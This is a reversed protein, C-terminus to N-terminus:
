NFGYEESGSFLEQIMTKLGRNDDDSLTSDAELIEKAATQTQKLLEVDETMDAIKMQPLGHQQKGFFNGPGRLKLDTNAIEFGNATAVMTDIRAKTYESKNDTVLICHSQVNGRGVRGRLQHLQSLGFREANEILMIVANPVDVGVEIVTTSVLVKTINNKFASMVEDKEAQKMRGHLLGIPIDRFYTDKLFEYYETAGKKEDKNDSDAETVLSCVIYAQNGQAIYKKIFNYLRERYSSDVGYTKVPLRGKPMEDLISIDLDGYIILALTRPIPTASMVLTHPNEGKEILVSRQAVGFRHQEDTIVLGLKHFKVSKQILAQTGIIINAENNEIAKKIERKEKPTNSGLLLVVNVGLPSLFECFTEYHQKALIETPAMLVSQCSNKFAFYALAAAVLTKGSGVDGQLLRNMPIRLCMDRMGEDVSRKQAATPRFPLADYFEAINQKVMITGTLKRNRNRLLNLGLQLVLLEQFALRKKAARYENEDAPFHIQRIANKMPILDYRDRMEVSMPEAVDYLELANKLNSSIINQSLGNTLPYKPVLKCGSNEDIFLPSNIERRLLDGQVKGNFIYKRGVVLKDFVYNANFFTCVIEDGNDDQLVARFISVTKTFRPALKKTVTAAFVANEDYEADCLAITKTYDLYARPYFTLLDWASSVGLRRYMAARKEGVGKLYQIQLDKVSM